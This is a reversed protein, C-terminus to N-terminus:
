TTNLYKSLEDLIKKIFFNGHFNSNFHMNDDLWIDENNLNDNNLIIKDIGSENRIEYDNLIFDISINEDSEHLINFRVSEAILFSGIVFISFFINKM